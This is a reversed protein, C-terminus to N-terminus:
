IISLFCALLVVCWPPAKWYQLLGFCLLGIAFDKSNGISNIWVPNYLAALLIGVVAANVAWLIKQFQSQKRIQNWFPMVGWVLLFSPLFIAITAVMAGMWGHIVAGLYAAFTFLPGPVAQALGYGVLFQSSDVWGTPVMEKELMPLVVHGGGFVLSGIRFFVDIVQIWKGGFTQRLIPLGLLLIFLLLLLWMGVQRKVSFAVAQGQSIKVSDAFFLGLIGAAVIVIIQIYAAPWLLTVMAAALAITARKKDPALKRGMGWVAQSIVAVAVIKLGHIFTIQGEGIERLGYYAYVILLVSPLTFGIWALIGGLYGGRYTGIAIGIQSSAPGPLFQCLAVIDAYLAEDIWKRKKVYEKHFYGVHALPGGFSVVGLYTAVALIEWLRRVHSEEKYQM